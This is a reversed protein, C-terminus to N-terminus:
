FKFILIILFLKTSRNEYNFLCHAPMLPKGLLSLVKNIKEHINNISTKVTTKSQM